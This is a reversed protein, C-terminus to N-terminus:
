SGEEIGIDILYRINQMRSVNADLNRILFTNKEILFTIFQELTMSGKMHNCESCVIIRRGQNAKRGTFCRAIIHDDTPMLKKDGVVMTCDCYPCQKGDAELLHKKM